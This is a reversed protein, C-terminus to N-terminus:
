VRRFPTEGLPQSVTPGATRTASSVTAACGSTTYTRNPPRCPAPQTKAASQSTSATPDATVSGSGTPPLWAATSMKPLHHREDRLPLNDDREVPGPAAPEPNAQFLRTGLRGPDTDGSINVLTAHFPQQAPAAPRGAPGRVIALVPDAQQGALRTWAGNEHHRTLVEGRHGYVLEIGSRIALHGLAQAVHTKGVGVPVYLIVSEGAPLWRLAALDRIQAAPLKPSAAFGSGELTAQEEFRARRIRKALSVSARRTIEDECLVQLFDLRADLIGLMGSLKLQRLAQGLGTRDTVTVPRTM